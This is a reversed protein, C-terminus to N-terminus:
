NSNLCAGRKTTAPMGSKNPNFVKSTILLWLLRLRLGLGFISPEALISAFGVQFLSQLCRSCSQPGIHLKPILILVLFSFFKKILVM